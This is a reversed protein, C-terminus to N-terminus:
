AAIAALTPFTVSLIRPTTPAFPQFNLDAVLNVTDADPTGNTIWKVPHADWYARDEATPKLIAPNSRKGRIQCYVPYVEPASKKYKPSKGANAGRTSYCSLRADQEPQPTWTASLQELTMDAPDLEAYTM